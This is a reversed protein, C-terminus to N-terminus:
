WKVLEQIAYVVVELFSILERDSRPCDLRAQEPARRLTSRERLRMEMTDASWSAEHPPRSSSLILWLLILATLSLTKLAQEAERLTNVCQFM